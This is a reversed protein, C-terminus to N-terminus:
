LSSSLFLTQSQSLVQDPTLTNIHVQPGTRLKPLFSVAELILSCATQLLFCRKMISTHRLSETM